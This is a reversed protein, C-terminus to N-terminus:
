RRRAVSRIDGLREAFAEAHHGGVDIVVAQHVEEDGVIGHLIEEEHIAARLVRAHFELLHRQRRLHGEAFVALRAGAHADVGGVDEAAAILIEEDGVDILLHEREIAVLFVLGEAVHRM